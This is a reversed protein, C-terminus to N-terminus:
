IKVISWSFLTGRLSSDLNKCVGKNKDYAYFGSGSVIVLDEIDGSLAKEYILPLGNGRHEENTESRNQGLLASRILESDGLFTDLLRKRVTAPIGAGTDVFSFFYRDNDCTAYIYWRESIKTLVKEYQKSDYAHSITNDMLEGIVGFLSKSDGGMFLCVESNKQGDVSKGESIQVNKATQVTKLNSDDSVTFDYFGSEVIIKKCEKKNPENGRVRRRFTRWKINRILALLYMIADITILEVRMLDIFFIEDFINKKAENIIEEFFGITEDTNNIISFNKPAKFVVTKDKNKIKSNPKRKSNTKLQSQRDLYRKRAVPIKKISAGGINVSSM